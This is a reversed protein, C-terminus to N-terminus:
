KNPRRASRLHTTGVGVVGLMLVVASAMGLLGLVIEM